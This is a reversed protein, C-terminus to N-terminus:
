QQQPQRLYLSGHRTLVAWAIRALKNALAVILKNRHIGKAEMQNLWVGLHDKTRDLHLVCTRAGHLLLKRLYSNGRQQYWIPATQRRHLIGPARAGAMGRSPSRVQIANRHGCVRYNGDSDVPRHWACTDIAHSCRRRECYIRDPASDSAPAGSHCPIGAVVQELLSHMAPTLGNQDDSLDSPMDRIFYAAGAPLTLGYELLFTRTQNIVSTKNYVLRQRVRDLAQLDLQPDTKLLAFRMTPRSIAEAIAEADVLDTKNSKVFPKVFQAPVIRVEHGAAAAKRALWNSGPCAEM